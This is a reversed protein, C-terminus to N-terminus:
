QKSLVRPRIIGVGKGSRTGGTVLVPEEDTWTLRKFGIRGIPIGSHLLKPNRLLRAKRAEAKGGFRRRDDRRGAMWKAIASAGFGAAGSVALAGVAVSAMMTAHTEVWAQTAMAFRQPDVLIDSITPFDVM